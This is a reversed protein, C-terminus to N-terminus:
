TLNRKEVLEDLLGSTGLGFCFSHVLMSLKGSPLLLGGGPGSDRDEQGEPDWRVTGKTM